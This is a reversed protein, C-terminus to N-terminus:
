EEHLTFLEQPKDVGRLMYRGLSVLSKESNKLDEAVTQSIIIRQGLPRHMDSLRAALNVEPGIVTFDLREDGGINGYLVRGAHLAVTHGLTPMDNASRKDSCDPMDRQLERVAQLARESADSFRERDFISLMGDGMFKLVDGGNREICEVAVGFYDNLMAILAEGEIKQSMSTFGELDFYCIIADIWRSSGRQIEGSLVRNGADRGLYVGLLDQATQRHTGSKLAMSLLPFTSRILNIDADTFGEPANSMWSMMAGEHHDEPDLPTGEDWEGFIVAKALYDTAGRAKMDNLLPFQSPENTAFMRERYEGLGNTMMFYFPSQFWTDPAEAAHRYEHRVPGQEHEWDFGVAGYVPHLANQTVHARLLPVGVEVLKLCYAELLETHPKGLLGADVIWSALDVLRPDAMWAQKTDEDIAQASFIQM